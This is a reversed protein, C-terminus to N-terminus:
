GRWGRAPEEGPMSSAVACRTICACAEERSLMWAHAWALMGARPFRAPACHREIGGRASPWRPSVRACRPSCRTDAAGHVHRGRGGRGARRSRAITLGMTRLFAKGPRVKRSVTRTRHPRVIAALDRLCGGRDGGGRARCSRRWGRVAQHPCRPKTTAGACRGDPLHPGVPARAACRARPAPASPAPARLRPM